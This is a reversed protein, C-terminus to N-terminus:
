FFELLGLLELATCMLLSYYCSSLRSTPESCPHQQPPPQWSPYSLPRTCQSRKFLAKVLDLSVNLAYLGADELDSFSFSSFNRNPAVHMQSWYKPHCYRFRAAIASAGFNCLSFKLSRRSAKRKRQQWPLKLAVCFLHKTVSSHHNSIGFHYFLLEQLFGTGPPRM